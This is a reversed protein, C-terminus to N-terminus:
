VMMLPDRKQVPLGVFTIHRRAAVEASSAVTGPVAFMSQASSGITSMDLYQLIDVDKMIESTGDDYNVRYLGHEGAHSV